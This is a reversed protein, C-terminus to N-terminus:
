QCTCSVKSTAVQTLVHSEIYESGKNKGGSLIAFISVFHDNLYHM